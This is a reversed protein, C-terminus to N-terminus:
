DSAENSQQEKRFSPTVTYVRGLKDAFVKGYPLFGKALYARQDYYKVEFSTPSEGLAPVLIPSQVELYGNDDFWSRAQKLLFARVKLVISTKKDIM